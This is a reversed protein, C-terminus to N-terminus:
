THSCTRARSRSSQDCEKGTRNALKCPSRSSLYSEEPACENWMGQLCTKGKWKCSRTHQAFPRPVEPANAHRSFLTPPGQCQQQPIFPFLRAPTVPATCWPHSRRTGGRIQTVRKRAVLVILTGHVSTAFKWVMIESISQTTDYGKM